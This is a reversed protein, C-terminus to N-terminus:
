IYQELFQSLNSPNRYGVSITGRGDGACELPQPGASRCDTRIRGTALHLGDRFHQKVQIGRCSIRNANLHMDVSVRQQHIANGNLLFHARTLRYVGQWSHM